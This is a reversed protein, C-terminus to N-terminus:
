KNFPWSRTHGLIEMQSLNRPVYGVLNYHRALISHVKLKHERGMYHSSMFDLQLPKFVYPFPHFKPHNKIPIKAAMTVMGTMFVDEIHFYPITLATEFMKAIIQGPIIYGSGSLFPPYELMSYFYCPTFVYPLIM